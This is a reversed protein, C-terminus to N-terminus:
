SNPEGISEAIRILEDKEFPGNLYYYTGASDIFELIGNQLEAPDSVGAPLPGVIEHDTRAYTGPRDNVTVEEDVGSPHGPVRPDDAPCASVVLDDSHDGSDSMYVLWGDYGTFPSPDSVAIQTLRYGEPLDTPGRFVFPVARNAEEISEYEGGEQELDDPSLNATHSPLQRFEETVTVSFTTTYERGEFQITVTATAPAAGVVQEFSPRPTFVAEGEQNIYSTLTIVMLRGAPSQRSGIMMEGETSDGQNAAAGLRRQTVMGIHKAVVASCEEEAWKEFPLTDYVPDGPPPADPDSFPDSWPSDEDSYEYDTIFRVEDTADIYEAQSANRFRQPGLTEEVTIPDGAGPKERQEAM